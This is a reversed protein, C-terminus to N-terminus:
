YSEAQIGLLSDGGPPRLRVERSRPPTGSVQTTARYIRFAGRLGDFWPDQVM